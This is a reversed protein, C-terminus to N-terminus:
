ASDVETEITLTGRARVLDNTTDWLVYRYIGATGTNMDDDSVTVQNDNAGGATVDGDASTLTWLATDPDTFDYVVFSLDCDSLDVPTDEDDVITFVYPGFAANRYQTISNESVAGASVTASLPTVAVIDSATDLAKGATGVGAHGSLAEDWIADAIEAAAGAALELAGFADSAIADADIANSAIKAATIANDALTVGNTVNTVTALTGTIDVTWSTVLALGDAALKFGTKDSVTVSTATLCQPLSHTDKAFGTGKIDTLHDIATNFNQLVDLLSMTSPVFASTDGNALMRSLISSDVVETTMDASATAVACLHDLNNAVLADNCESQVETDWNANWPIATLTTGTGLATVVDAATTNSLSNLFSGDLRTDDNVTARTGLNTITGSTKTTDYLVSADVALTGATNRLDYVAGAGAVVSITKCGSLLTNGASEVAYAPTDGGGIVDFVTDTVVATGSNYLAAVRYVAGPLAYDYLYSGRVVISGSVLYLTFSNCTSWGSCRINVNELLASGSISIGHEAATISTNRFLCSLCNTLLMGNDSSVIAVDEIIISNISSGSIATASDATGTQTIAGHGCLRCRTGLKITYGTAQAVTAGALLELTCDTYSSLNVAETYTGASVIIRRSSGAAATITLKAAGWTLGDNADNGSKSVYYNTEGGLDSRTVATGDWEQVDAAANGDTDIALSSFNTPLAAFTDGTQAIHGTLTTCTDTLVVGAVKHTSPDYGTDAFDKLDTASQTVGGLQIADVQLYDTGFVLSDYVNAPLVMFDQWVPTAGAVQCFVRLTGVTGLDTANLVCTYHGNAGTATLDTAENKAALTGGAKSLLVDTYAITLSNEQTNGDTADLFPGLRVLTVVASQRLWQAM